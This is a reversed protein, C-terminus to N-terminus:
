RVRMTVPAMSPDFTSILHPRLSPSSTIRDILRAPFADVVVAAAVVVLGNM